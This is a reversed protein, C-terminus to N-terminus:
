SILFFSIVFLWKLVLNRSNIGDLILKWILTQQLLSKGKERVNGAVETSHAKQVNEGLVMYQVALWTSGPTTKKSAISLM